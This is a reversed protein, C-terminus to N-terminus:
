IKVKGRNELASAASKKEEGRARRRKEEPGVAAQSM